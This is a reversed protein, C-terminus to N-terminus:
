RNAATGEAAHNVTPGINLENIEADTTGRLYKLELVEMETAELEDEHDYGMLHLAAHVLLLRAEDAITNGYQPAQAEIIEPCLVIDGLMFVNAGDEESEDDCYDEGDEDEEDLFEEEYEWDDPDDINFSLVDTPADVGRWERNLKHITEVDVFSVSVEAPTICEEGELVTKILMDIQDVSLMTQDVQDDIEIRIAAAM